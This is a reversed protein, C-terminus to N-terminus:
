IPVQVIYMHVQVVFYRELRTLLFSLLYLIEFKVYIIFRVSNQIKVRQFQFKSGEQENILYNIYLHTNLIFINFYYWFLPRSKSSQRERQPTSTRTWSGPPLLRPRVPWAWRQTGGAYRWRVFIIIRWLHAHDCQGGGGRPGVPM